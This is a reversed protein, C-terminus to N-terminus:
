DTSTRDYPGRHPPRRGGGRGYPLPPFHEDGTHAIYEAVAGAVDVRLMRRLDEAMADDTAEDGPVAGKDHYVTGTAVLSADSAALTVCDISYGSIAAAVAHGAEHISWYLREVEPEAQTYGV